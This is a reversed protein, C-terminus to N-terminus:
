KDPHQNILQQYISEYANVMTGKSYRAKAFQACENSSKLTVESARVSLLLSDLAELDSYPVFKGFGPIAVEKPAGSDFGIVPTGCALSEASVMSFTEKESTLLLVDALSYYQALLNQDFIRPLMRVNRPIQKPMQDVGVMVFVMDANPNRNALEVVWRGGKLESLLNSGVSLVIYESTLGLSSRLEKTDRRYFTATDLGNHVVSIPKDRVISQRMRGALWESPAVLHVREFDSFLAQKERFMHTTFDFFWSSPYGRLDPCNKCVTKWNECDLAYGCKGTYMFECHFTWITPIRKVKLYEILPRINIYYGHLDHLHVVDPKFSEIHEILRRTALPSFGDTLGIIRTGLAHVFVEAKSSIKFVNYNKSDPGRGFCAMSTHGLDGLGAILDAVIKGTSSFNYNVDIQFVKM